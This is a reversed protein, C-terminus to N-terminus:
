KNLMAVLWTIKFRKIFSIKDTMSNRKAKPSLKNNKISSTELVSLMYKM